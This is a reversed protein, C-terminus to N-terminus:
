KFEKKNEEKIERLCTELPTEQEPSEIDPKTGENANNTGDDNLAWEYTVIGTLHSNPLSYWYPLGGGIGDGGTQMGVLTAFGTEKCTAAFSDAASYNEPYTLIWIRGQLIKQNYRPYITIDVKNYTDANGYEGNQINLVKPLEKLANDPYVVSRGWDSVYSEMPEKQESNRLSDINEEYKFLSILSYKCTKDINPAIINDFWFSNDGGSNYRLDFIVHKYESAQKMLDILRESARQYEAMYQMTPITIVAVDDSIKEMKMMDIKEAYKIRSKNIMYPSYREKLINDWYKFIKQNEKTSIQKINKNQGAYVCAYELSYMPPQIGIHWNAAFDRVANQLVAYFEVDDESEAVIKRWKAIHEELNIGKENALKELCYVKDQIIQWMFDYDQLKQEATLNLPEAAEVLNLYKELETATMSEQALSKTPVRGNVKPRINETWKTEQVARRNIRIHNSYSLILVM